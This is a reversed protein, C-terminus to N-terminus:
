WTRLPEAVLLPWSPQVQCCLSNEEHPHDSRDLYISHMKNLSRNLSANQLPFYKNFLRLIEQSWEWLHIIISKCIPSHKSLERINVYSLCAVIPTESSAAAWLCRGNLKNKTGSCFSRLYHWWSLVSKCWIFRYYMCSYSSARFRNSSKQDIISLHLM